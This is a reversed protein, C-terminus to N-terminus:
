RYIRYPAVQRLWGAVAATDRAVVADPDEGRMLAERM